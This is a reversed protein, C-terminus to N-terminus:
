APSPRPASGAPAYRSARDALQGLWNTVNLRWSLTTEVYRRGNQGLRSGLESDSALRRIAAALAHPDDPTVVLGAGAQEVITAAEGKGAFVVPKACAMIAFMKASRNARFLPIDRQPVLGCSALSLFRVVEDEPVPDLFTVNGLRLDRAERLLRPKESGDGLFVFHIDPQSALLQAARLAHELAHAYGHTGAYLVIRKGDLGLHRALAADPPSPRYLQTDVGNPLFLVREPPVDKREILAERLGDTVANVYAAHRYVTREFREAMRLLWGDDMIALERVADVWLDSVNFIYPVKWWARAVMAPLALSLPPSEVFLYDPRSAKVLGLTASLAFSGFNLLRKAGAGM